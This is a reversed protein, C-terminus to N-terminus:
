PLEMYNINSTYTRLQDESFFPQELVTCIKRLIELLLFTTPHNHTLLLTHTHGYSEFIDSVTIDIQNLAERRKTEALSDQFSAIDFHVAQVSTLKNTAYSKIQETSFNKSTTAKIPHYIIHDCTKLYAIGEEDDTIKHICKDSWAILNIAMEQGYCVWRVEHNSGRLLEQLYFCLALSQCNGVLGIKM